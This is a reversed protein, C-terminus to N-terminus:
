ITRILGNLCKKFEESIYIDCKERVVLSSNDGYKTIRHNFWAAAPKNYMKFIFNAM